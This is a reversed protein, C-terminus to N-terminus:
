LTGKTEGALGLKRLLAAVETVQAETMNERGNRFHQVARWDLYAQLRALGAADRKLLRPAHFLSGREWPQGDADFVGDSTTIKVRKGAGHQRVATVTAEVVQGSSRRVLVAEGVEWTQATM